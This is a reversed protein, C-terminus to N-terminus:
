TRSRFTFMWDSENKGLGPIDTKYRGQTGEASHLCPPGSRHKKRTTVNSQDRATSPSEKLMEGTDSNTERLIPRDPNWFGKSTESLEAKEREDCCLRNERELLISLVLVVSVWLSIILDSLCVAFIVIFGSDIKRRDM